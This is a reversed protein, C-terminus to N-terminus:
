EALRVLYSVLVVFLLWLLVSVVLVALSLLGFKVARRRCSRAGATDGRAAREEARVANILAYMGVCSCGFITSFVALWFFRRHKELYSCVAWKGEAEAEEEDEEGVEALPQTDPLRGNVRPFRGDTQEEARPSGESAEMAPENGEPSADDAPFPPTEVRSGAGSTRGSGRPGEAGVASSGRPCRFPADGQRGTRGSEPSSHVRVGPDGRYVSVTLPDQRQRHGTGKVDSRVFHLGECKGPNFKM